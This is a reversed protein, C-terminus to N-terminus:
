KKYLGSKYIEEAVSEPLFYKISKGERIMKRIGTSSIEIIPSENLLTCLRNPDIKDSDKRMYVVISYRNLIEEGCHWRSINEYSDSGVILSFINDPYTMELKRLTNITYSPKSMKFEIDSVKFYDVGEVALKVLHLRSYEDSLDGKQKFPNHPSVIFWIQDFLGANYIYNGVILHGHHIPNFSGFFLGVRM